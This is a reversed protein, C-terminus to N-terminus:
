IETEVSRKLAAEVSGHLAIHFLGIMDEPTRDDPKRLWQACASVLAMTYFETIFKKHEPKAPIDMALNEVFRSMIAETNKMFLQQLMERGVSNYACLCVKRNQELYRLFLLIGDDWTVCNESKALLTLLETDFMWKLLDYTDEFHYYFTPRTINCDEILDKVTIKDFPKKEMFRKLSAAIRYKTATSIESKKM